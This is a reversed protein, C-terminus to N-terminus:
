EGYNAFSFRGSELYVSRVRLTPAETMFQIVLKTGAGQMTTRRPNMVSDYNDAVLGQDDWLQFGVVSKGVWNPGKVHICLDVSAADITNFVQTLFIM